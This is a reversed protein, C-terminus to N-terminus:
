SGDGYSVLGHNGAASSSRSSSRSRKNGKDKEDQPGADPSRSALYDRNRSRSRGRDSPDRQGQPGLRSRLRESVTPLRDLKPSINRRPSRSRDRGHGHYGVPNPSASRSGQRRGRYRLPSGGRPSRRYRRVPSRETYARYRSYRDQGSARENRGRYYHSRVSSREPSPTRYRRAYAYQATFGRGKRIRKPAGDPSRSRSLNRGRNLTAGSAKYGPSREPSRLHNNKKQKESERMLSPTAAEAQLIKDPNPLSNRLGSSGKPDRFRSSKEDLHSHRNVTRDVKAELVNDKEQSEGNEHFLEGDEHSASDKVAEKEDKRPGGLAAEKGLVVSPPKTQGAPAKSSLDITRSSNKTKHTDRQCDNKETDSSSSSASESEPNSLSESSRRRSRKNHRRQQKERVWDRKRKGHRHRDKKSAKKRRRHRSDSSSSTDSSSSYSDSDSDSVSDSSYSDSDSNDSSYSDSAYKRKRKKKKDKVTRKRGIRGEGDSSDGSPLDRGSKIPKKEKTTGLSTQIKNDSAEGCDVIKVPCVPKGDDSGAQEIKKLLSMGSVVKGFVVNKGDLRPAARFSIFFQSGNSDPASTAMSLVGPADHKLKIEDSFKGGYISEGGSGDLKAIDGGQAGFKKVIRHFTSGKYRLAKGTSAGIGKEGTCLARFNEATKPVVDSFLEIVMREAQDGDISIDLFVLPNKKKAM